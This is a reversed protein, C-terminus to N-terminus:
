PSARQPPSAGPDALILVATFEEAGGQPVYLNNDADFALGGGLRDWQCETYGTSGPHFNHPVTFGGAREARMGSKLRGRYEHIHPGKGVYLLDLTPHLALANAATVGALSRSYDCVGPSPCGCTGRPCDASANCAAHARPGGVCTKGGTGPPAGAPEVYGCAKGNGPGRWCAGYQSPGYTDFRGSPIGIVASAAMGDVLPYEYVLVRAGRNEVIQDSVIVRARGPDSVVDYPRCLTSATPSACFSPRSGDTTMDPKGLVLDAVADGANDRKCIGSASGEAGFCYLLVRGTRYDAVWVNGDSDARASTPQCLTEASVQDGAACVATEFSGKQGLVLDAAAGTKLEGVRYGVVRHNDRDAVVLRPTEGDVFDMLMPFFLTNASRGPRNPLFTEFGPQGLVFDAAPMGSRAAVVDRWCLIRNDQSDGFCGLGAFTGKRVVAAGHGHGFGFRRPGVHLYHSVDCAIQGQIVEAAANVPPFDPAFRLVRANNSDAVWLNDVDDFVVDRASALRDCLVGDTSRGPGVATFDSAGIVRTAKDYPPPVFLVRGSGIEAIALNDRSDFDIGAGPSEGITIRTESRGAVASTFGDQGFVLSARHAPQTFQKDYRVVRHNNADLVWLNGKSDFAASKPASLSDASPGQGRNPSTSSCDPQGLCLDPPTGNERPPRRWVAVRNFDRDAVVLTTACESQPCDGDRDCPTGIREGGVCRRQADVDSAHEIQGEVRPVRDGDFSTHGLVLDMAANSSARRPYRGVRKIDTIWLADMDATSVAKVARDFQRGFTRAAESYFGGVTLDGPLRQGVHDVRRDFSAQGIVVSAASSSEDIAKGEFATVRFFDAVYLRRPPAPDFEIGVATALSSATPTNYVGDELSCQGIVWDGVLDGARGSSVRPAEYECQAIGNVCEGGPGCDADAACGKMAVIGSPCWDNPDEFPYLPCDLNDSCPVGASVNCFVAVRCRRPHGMRTCIGKTCDADVVCPEGQDLGGRCLLVENSGCLPSLPESPPGPPAAPEVKVPTSGACWALTAAIVIGVALMAIGRRGSAMGTPQM